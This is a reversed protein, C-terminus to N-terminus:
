QVIGLIDDEQMILHEVGSITIETGAYVAFLVQDGKKVELPVRHGKKNTKGPGVAVVKGEHPKEKATDPIIIGGSTTEEEEIRIVLIKDNMPRIGM